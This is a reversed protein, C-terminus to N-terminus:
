RRDITINALHEYSVWAFPNILVRESSTLAVYVVGGFMADELTYTITVIEPAIPELGVEEEGQERPVAIGAAPPRYDVVVMRCRQESMRKLVGAEQAIVLLDNITLSSV